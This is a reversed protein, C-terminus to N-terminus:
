FESNAYKSFIKYMRVLVEYKNPVLFLMTIETKKNFYNFMM